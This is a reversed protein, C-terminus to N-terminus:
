RNMQRILFSRLAWLIADLQTQIQGTSWQDLDVACAKFM